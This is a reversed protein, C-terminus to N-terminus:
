TAVGDASKRIVSLAAGQAGDIFVGMGARVCMSGAGASATGGQRIYCDTDSTFYFVETAAMDAKINAAAVGVLLYSSSSAVPVWTAAIPAGLPGGMRNTM